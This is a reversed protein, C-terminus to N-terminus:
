GGLRVSHHLDDADQVHPVTQQHGDSSDQDVGVLELGPLQGLQGLALGRLAPEDRAEETVIKGRLM